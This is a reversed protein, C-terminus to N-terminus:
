TCNYFPTNYVDYVNLFNLFNMYVILVNTSRIILKEYFKLVKLGFNLLIFCQSFLTSFIPFFGQNYGNVLCSLLFYSM